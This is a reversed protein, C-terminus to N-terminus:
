SGLSSCGTANCPSSLPASDGANKCGTGLIEDAVLEIKILQPKEYPLKTEAPSENKM